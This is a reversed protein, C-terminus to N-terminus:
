QTTITSLFDAQRGRVQRSRGGERRSASVAELFDEGCVIGVPSDPRTPTSSPRLSTGTGGWRPQGISKSSAHGVLIPEHLTMLRRGV